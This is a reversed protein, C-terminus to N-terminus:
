EGGRPLRLAGKSDVLLWISKCMALHSYATVQLERRLEDCQHLTDWDEEEVKQHVLDRIAACASHM